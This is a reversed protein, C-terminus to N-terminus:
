VPVPCGDYDPEIRRFLILTDEGHAGFGPLTAESRFGLHALWKCSRRNDQHVLCVAQRVGRDRLVPVMIRKIYRTVPLILGWGKETKFGWVVASDGYVKAGFAFVPEADELAVMCIASDFADSALTEYDKPDRTASLEHIDEECLWSGVHELDDLTAANITRLKPM